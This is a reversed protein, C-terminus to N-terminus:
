QGNIEQNEQENVGETQAKSESDKSEQDVVITTAMKQLYTEGRDKQDKFLYTEQLFLDRLRLHDQYDSAGAAGLGEIEDVELYVEKSASQELSEQRFGKFYPHSLCEDVTPRFYPNFVLIQNMLDIAESRAGPYRLALDSRPRPAFTKLYQIAKLDTLYSTDEESPTGIVDFVINLQDNNCYAVGNNPKNTGSDPSLPFCSSGPFLPKRDNPNPVNEKMMSILEAMICGVAWVDIAEGYDKELLILEPARYWRTVIHGTLQRKLSRRNERSEELLEKLLVRKENNGVIGELLQSHKIPSEGSQQKGEDQQTQRQEYAEVIFRKTNEVGAISRALGFDCVKVACDENILINAPKIDRHLIRASHMYKLACLLNYMITQIHQDTLYISTKLLKKLDSQAPELVLYLTKFSIPDTPELLDYLKVINRNDLQKLIQIERLLRKTDIVDDFLNLMKKIVVKTGTPKHVADAVRGYSGWGIVKKVEYDKGVGEWERQLQILEQM